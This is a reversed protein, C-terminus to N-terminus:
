IIEDEVPKEFAEYLVADDPRKTLLSVTATVALSFLMCIVGVTPSCSIGRQIISGFSGDCLPHCYGLVVQGVSHQSGLQLVM